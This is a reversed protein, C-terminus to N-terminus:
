LLVLGRRIGETVAETRSSTGLKGFISTIHFKVTHESIGLASAIERNSLGSTMMHLVETERPTLEEEGPELEITELPPHSLAQATEPELATLGAAAAQVAAALQQGSCDRRLVCLAGAALLQSVWSGVANDTLLVVAAGLEAIRSATERHDDDLDIVVVMGTRAQRLTTSLDAPLIDASELADEESLKARLVRGREASEALVLVRTAQAAAAKLTM